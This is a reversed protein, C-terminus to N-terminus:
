RVIVPLRIQATACLLTIPVSRVISQENVIAAVKASAYVATVGEPVIAELLVDEPLVNTPSTASLWVVSSPWVLEGVANTGAIAVTGVPAEAEVQAAANLLSVSFTSGASAEVRLTQTQAAGAACNTDIFALSTPRVLLGDGVVFTVPVRVPPELVLPSPSTLILNATYIGPRLNSAEFGLTVAFPTVFSSGSLGLWPRREAISVNVAVGPQAPDGTVTVLVTTSPDGSRANAAVTAHNASLVVEPLFGVRDLDGLLLTRGNTSFATLAFTIANEPSMYERVGSTSILVLEDKSDGDLDGAAGVQYRNDDDLIDEFSTPTDNFRQRMFLRPKSTIAADVTRLMYAEAWGNNNIDGMFIYSPSPDFDRSYEDALAGNDWRWVFLSPLGIPADRVASLTDRDGGIFPGMAVDLWPRSDSENAYVRAADAPGRMQWVELTGTDRAVLAIEDVGDSDMDGLAVASWDRNSIPLGVAEWQRGNQAGVNRLYYVSQNFATPGVAGAVATRTSLLIEDGPTTADLNGAAIVGVPAALPIVAVSEWPVGGISQAPAVPGTTVVPDYIDLTTAGGVARVGAIEADSDGNVDILVADTYGDVPSYWAIETTGTYVSDRVHMRGTADIYVIEDAVDGPPQAHALRPLLACCLALLIAGTITYVSNRPNRRYERM